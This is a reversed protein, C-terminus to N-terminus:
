ALMPTLGVLVGVLHQALVSLNGLFALLIARTLNPPISPFLTTMANLSVLLTWPVEM